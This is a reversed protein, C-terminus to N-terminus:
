QGGLNALARERNIKKYLSVALTHQRFRRRWSPPKTCKNKQAAHSFHREKSGVTLYGIVYSGEPYIAHNITVRTVGPVAIVAAYVDGLNKKGRVVSRIAGEINPEYERLM